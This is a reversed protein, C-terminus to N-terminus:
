LFHNHLSNRRYLVRVDNSKTGLRLVDGDALFSFEDPLIATKTEFPLYDLAKANKALSLYLGFGQPPNGGDVLFAERSRLARQRGRQDTVRIVIRAPDDQLNRTAVTRGSLKLM